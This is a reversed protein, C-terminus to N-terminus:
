TNAVYVSRICRQCLQVRHKLSLSAPCTIRSWVQRDVFGLVQHLEIAPKSRPQGERVGILMDRRAATTRAVACVSRDPDAAVASLEAFDRSASLATRETPARQINEQGTTGHICEREYTVRIQGRRIPHLQM